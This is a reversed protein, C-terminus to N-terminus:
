MDNAGNQFLNRRTFCDLLVKTNLVLSGDKMIGTPRLFIITQNSKQLLHLHASEKKEKNTQKLNKKLDFDFYM